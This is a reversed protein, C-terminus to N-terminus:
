SFGRVKLARDAADSMAERLSMSGFLQDPEVNRLSEVEGAATSVKETLDVVDGTRAKKKAERLDSGGGASRKGAVRSAISGRVAGTPRSLALREEEHVESDEQRESKEHGADVVGEVAGNARCFLSVLDRQRDLALLIGLCSDALTLATGKKVEVVDEAPPPAEDDSDEGGLYNYTNFTRDAPPIQLFAETRAVSDPSSLQCESVAM